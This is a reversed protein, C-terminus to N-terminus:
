GAGLRLAVARGFGTPDLQPGCFVVAVQQIPGSRGEAGVAAGKQEGLPAECGLPHQGVPLQDVAARGAAQRTQCPQQLPGRWESSRGPQHTPGPLGMSSAGGANKDDGLHILGM